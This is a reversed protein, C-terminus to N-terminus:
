DVSSDNQVWSGICTDEKCNMRLKGHPPVLKAKLIDRFQRGTIVSPDPANNEQRQQYYISDESWGIIPRGTSSVVLAARGGRNTLFATSEKHLDNSTYFIYLARSAQLDFANPNNKLISEAITDVEGPSSLVKEKHFFPNLPVLKDKTVQFAGDKSILPVYENPKSIAPAHPITRRLFSWM